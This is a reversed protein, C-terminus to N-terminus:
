NLIFVPMKEASLGIEWKSIPPNQDIKGLFYQGTQDFLPMGESIMGQASIVLSYKGTVKSLVLNGTLGGEGGRAYPCSM